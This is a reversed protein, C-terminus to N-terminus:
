LKQKWSVVRKWRSLRFAARAIVFSVSQVVAGYSSYSLSENHFGVFDIAEMLGIVVPLVISGVKGGEISEQVSYQSVMLLRM